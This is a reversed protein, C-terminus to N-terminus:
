GMKKNKYTKRRKNRKNKTKMKSRKKTKKKYNKKKKKTKSKSKSKGGSPNETSKETFFIKNYLKILDNIKGINEPNIKDDCDKERLEYTNTSDVITNLPKIPSNKLKIKCSVSDIYKQILYRFQTKLINIDKQELINDIIKEFFDYINGTKKNKDMENQIETIEKDIFKGVFESM